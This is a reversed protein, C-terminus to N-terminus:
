SGLVANRGGLLFHLLRLGLCRAMFNGHSSYSTVRNEIYVTYLIYIYIHIYSTNDGGIYM